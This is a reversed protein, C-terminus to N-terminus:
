AVEVAAGMGLLAVDHKGITLRGMGQFGNVGGGREAREELVEERKGGVGGV